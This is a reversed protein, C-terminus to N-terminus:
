KGMKEKLHQHGPAEKLIDGLEKRRIRDAGRDLSIHDTVSVFM